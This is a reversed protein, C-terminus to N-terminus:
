LPYPTPTTKQNMHVSIFNLELGNFHALPGL